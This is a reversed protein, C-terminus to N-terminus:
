INNTDQIKKEGGQKHPKFKELSVTTMVLLKSYTILLFFNLIDLAKMM